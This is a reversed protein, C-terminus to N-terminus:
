APVSKLFDWVRNIPEMNIASDFYSLFGKATKGGGQPINYIVEDDQDCGNTDYDIKVVDCDVSTIVEQVLGGEMVILVQPDGPEVEMHLNEDLGEAVEAMVEAECDAITELVKGTRTGEDGIEYTFPVNITVSQGTELKKTKM